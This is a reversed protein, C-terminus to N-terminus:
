PGSYREHTGLSSMRSGASSSSNWVACGFRGAGRPRPLGGRRRPRGEPAPRPSPPVTVSRDPESGLWDCRVGEGSYQDGM